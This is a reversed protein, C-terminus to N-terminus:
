LKEKFYKWSNEFFLSLSINEHIKLFCYKRTKYPFDMEIVLNISLSAYMTMLINAFFM